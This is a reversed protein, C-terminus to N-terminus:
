WVERALLPPALSRRDHMVVQNLAFYLYLLLNLNANKGSYQLSIRCILRDLNQGAIWRYCLGLTPDTKCNSRVFAQTLALGM